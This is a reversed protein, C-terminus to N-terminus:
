PTYGRKVGAHVSNLKRKVQAKQKDTGFKAVMGAAATRHGADEMPYARNKPDAFDSSPLANREATTLKAM